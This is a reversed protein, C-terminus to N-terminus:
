HTPDLVARLLHLQPTGTSDSVANTVISVNLSHVGYLADTQARNYERYTMRFTTRDPMLLHVTPEAQVILLRHIRNRLMQSM